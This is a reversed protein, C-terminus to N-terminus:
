TYLDSRRRRREEKREEKRTRTLSSRRSYAFISPPPPPLLPNSISFFVAKWFVRIAKEVISPKLRGCSSCSTYELEL